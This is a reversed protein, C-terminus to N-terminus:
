LLKNNLYVASMSRYSIIAYYVDVKINNHKIFLYMLTCSYVCTANCGFTHIQVNSSM